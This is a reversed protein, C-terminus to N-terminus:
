CKWPSSGCSGGPDRSEWSCCFSHAQVFWGIDSMVVQTTL